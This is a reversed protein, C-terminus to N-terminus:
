SQFRVIFICINVSKVRERSRMKTSADLTCARELYIRLSECDFFRLREGGALSFMCSREAHSNEMCCGAAHQICFMIHSCEILAILYSVSDHKVSIM